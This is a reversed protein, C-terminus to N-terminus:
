LVICYKINLLRQNENVKLKLNRPVLSSKYVFQFEGIEPLNQMFVVNRCFDNTSHEQTKPVRYCKSPYSNQDFYNYIVHM